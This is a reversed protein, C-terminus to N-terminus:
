LAGQAAHHRIFRPIQATAPHHHAQRPCGSVHRRDLIQAPRELPEPQHDRRDTDVYRWPTPFSLSADVPALRFFASRPPPAPILRRGGRTCACCGYARRRRPTCQSPSLPPMPPVRRRTSPVGALARPTNRPAPPPYPAARLADGGAGHCPRRILM